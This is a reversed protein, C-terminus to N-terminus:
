SIVKIKYHDKVDPWFSIGGTVRIEWEIANNGTNLSPMADAPLEFGVRGSRIEAHQTSEFLIHEYFVGRSTHTNTGRRYTASEVGWLTIKMRMIREAKSAIKWSIEAQQGPRLRGPSLTIVPKPNTLALLQYFFGLIVAFGVLVFPIMFLTLFWEPDGKRFGEVVQWVFVSVIGNWLLAFLLLGVAGGLRTKGPSLVTPGESLGAPSSWESDTPRKTDLFRNGGDGSDLKYADAFRRGEGGAVKLKARARFSARVMLLGIVFFVLPILCLLAMWSFGRRLLAREPVNPDVYCVRTSGPPYQKTVAVKGKRGSSSGRLARFNNSRYKEGNVEYEYFIDVSWTISTEGDSTSEHRQVRSWIIRCPTEVWNKSEVMKKIPVIGLPIGIGGGVLTFIGGLILLFKWGTKKSSSGSKSISETGGAEMRKQKRLSYVGGWAIAGGILVFVLPFLVMLSTLVGDRKIVANGPNEPDVYCETNSRSLLDKRLLALKEYNDGWHEQLRYRNSSRSQGAFTYKYFVELQFPNEDRSRDALIECKQIECPVKEWQYTQVEEVAQSGIFFMFVLGFGAFVLGFLILCGGGVRNSKKGSSISLEV